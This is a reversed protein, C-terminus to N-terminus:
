ERERGQDKARERPNEETKREGKLVQQFREREGTARDQRWQLMGIADLTDIYDARMDLLDSVRCGAVQERFGEYMRDRAADWWRRLFAKREEPNLATLVPDARHFNEALFRHYGIERSLEFTERILADRDM